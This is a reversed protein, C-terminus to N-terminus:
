ISKLASHLYGALKEWERRMEPTTELTAQRKVREYLSSALEVASALSESRVKSAVRLTGIARGGWAGFFQSLVLLQNEPYHVWRQSSRELDSTVVEFASEFSLFSEEHEGIIIWTDDDEEVNSVPYFREDDRCWLVALRTGAWVVVSRLGNAHEHVQGVNWEKV